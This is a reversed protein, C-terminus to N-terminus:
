FSLSLAYASIPRLSLPSVSDVAPELNQATLVSGSVPSLSVFQSIM